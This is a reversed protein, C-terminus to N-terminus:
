VTNLVYIGSAYLRDLVTRDTLLGFTRVTNIGAAEMLMADQDVFQAYDSRNVEGRAVPNWCVGQIQFPSGNVELVGDVIAVTTETPLMTDAAEFTDEMGADPHATDVEGSTDEPRMAIDDGHSTSTDTTTSDARPRTDRVFSQPTDASPVGTDLADGSGAEDSCAFALLAILAALWPAYMDSRITFM